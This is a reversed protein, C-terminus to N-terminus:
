ELGLFAGIIKGWKEKNYGCCPHHVGLVKICGKNPIIYKGIKMSEDIWKWNDNPTENFARGWMIVFEPLPDISTLLEFFLSRSYDIEDKNPQHESNFMAVQIFNAFVVSQWFEFELGEREMISRAFTTFGNMWHDHPGKHLLYNLYPTITNLRTFNGELNEGFPCKDIGCHSCHWRERCYHSMGLVLLRRGQLANDVNGYASGIVPKFNIVKKM